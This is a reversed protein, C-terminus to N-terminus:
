IPKILNTCYKDKITSDFAKPNHEINGSFL